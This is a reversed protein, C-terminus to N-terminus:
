WWRRAPMPTPAQISAQTSSIEGQFTEHGPDKPINPFSSMGTALVLQKPRLTVPQGNRVVEVTWEKKERDYSAKECVTSGWYNLEMVKTYM